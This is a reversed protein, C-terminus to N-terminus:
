KADEPILGITEALRMVRRRYILFCEDVSVVIYPLRAFDPMHKIFFQRKMLRCTMSIDGSSREQLGIAVMLVPNNPIGNLEDQNADSLYEVRPHIEDCILKAVKPDIGMRATLDSFFRVYICDFGSYLMRGSEKKFGTDPLYKKIWTRITNENRAVIECFERYTFQYKELFDGNLISENM